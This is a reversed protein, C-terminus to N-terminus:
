RAAAGAFSFGLLLGLLGLLAGQIAGLDGGRAPEGPRIARRGFRFGAELSSFLLLILSAAVVM